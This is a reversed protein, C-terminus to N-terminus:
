SIRSREVRVRVIELDGHMFEALEAKTQRAADITNVVHVCRPSYAETNHPFFWVEFEDENQFM